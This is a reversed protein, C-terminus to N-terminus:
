PIKLYQLGLESRILYDPMRVTVVIVYTEDPLM